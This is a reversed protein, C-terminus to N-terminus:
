AARTLLTRLCVRQVAAEILEQNRDRFDYNGEFDLEAGLAFAAQQFVQPSTHSILHSTCLWDRFLLGGLVGGLRFDTAM